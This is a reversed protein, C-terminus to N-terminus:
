EIEDTLPAVEYTHVAGAPAVIVPPVVVETVIVKPVVGPFIETAAALLQPGPAAVVFAIVSLGLGALPPIESGNVLVNPTNMGALPELPLQINALLQAFLAELPCVPGPEANNSPEDHWNPFPPLATDPLKSEGLM